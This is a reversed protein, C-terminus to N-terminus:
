HRNYDNVTRKFRCLGQTLHMETDMPIVSVMVDMLHQRREPRHTLSRRVLSAGRGSGDHPHNAPPVDGCMVARSVASGNSSLDRGAVLGSLPSKEPDHCRLVM